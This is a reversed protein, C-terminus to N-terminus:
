HYTRTTATDVNINEANVYNAIIAELAQIYSNIADYFANMKAQDNAFESMFKEKAEGEWMGSLSSATDALGSIQNKFLANQEALQEKISKLQELTVSFEAM